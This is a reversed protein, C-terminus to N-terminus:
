FLRRTSYLVNSFLATASSRLLFVRSDDARIAASRRPEVRSQQAFVYGKADGIAELIAGPEERCRKRLKREWQLFGKAPLLERIRELAYDADGGGMARLATKKM